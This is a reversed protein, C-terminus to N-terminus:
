KKSPLKCRLASLSLVHMRPLRSLSFSLSVPTSNKKKAFFPLTLTMLISLSPPRSLHLSLLSLSSLRPSLKKEESKM